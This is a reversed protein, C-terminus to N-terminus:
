RPEPARGIVQPPVADGWSAHRAWRYSEGQSRTVVLERKSPAECIALRIHGPRALPARLVRAAAHAPEHRSVALYSYKEDEFGLEAGKVRRHLSDRALRRSFHCWDQGAMPCKGDSPCPATVTAGAAILLTRARLIRAFGAPTGSDVIVLEGTTAEWWGAVADPLASPEIEGILYSALVLDARVAPPAIASGRRWEADRVAPDAARAALRRGVSIMAASREVLTARELSPFCEAAAWTGTGPGAGLDLLSRPRWQPRIERIADLVACAAAFTAPLRAALYASVDDSSLTMDGSTAGGNRYRRSLERYAGSLDRHGRDPGRAHAGIEAAAAALLSTTSQARDDHDSASQAGM